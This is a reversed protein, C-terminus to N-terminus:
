PQPVAYTNTPKILGKQKGQRFLQALTPVSAAAVMDDLEDETLVPNNGGMTERIVPATPDSVGCNDCEKGVPRVMNCGPCIWSAM